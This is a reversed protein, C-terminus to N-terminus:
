KYADYVKQVAGAYVLLEKLSEPELRRGIITGTPEVVLMRPTSIVGYQRQYDSEMEPDWLHIVRVDGFGAGFSDRFGDWAQRDAGCYVAFFDAPFGTQSLISPLVEIEARCKPCNLDFFFLISTRGESPLRCLNGDADPVNLVPAEMGLLSNRNFMVFIEADMRAFENGISLLGSDFWKDYLYIAVSEEGMVPPLAYYDFLKQAIHQRTVSDAASSIMFDCESQKVEISEQGMSACYVELLSDLSAYRDEQAYGTLSLAAFTVILAIKKM